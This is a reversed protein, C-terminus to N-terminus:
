PRHGKESSNAALLHGHIQLDSASNFSGQLFGDHVNSDCFSLLPGLEALLLSVLWPRVPSRRSDSLINRQLQGSSVLHAMRTVSETQSM